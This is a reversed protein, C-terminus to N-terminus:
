GKIRSPLRKRAGILFQMDAGEFNDIRDLSYAVGERVGRRGFTRKGTAFSKTGDIPDIVWLWDSDTNDEGEEEGYVGHGPYQDAIM